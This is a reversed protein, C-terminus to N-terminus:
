RCVAEGRWEQSARQLFEHWIPAAVTLGDATYTMPANDANGVVVGVVLNQSYGVTWVSGAAYSLCDGGHSRQLCQDSTGTKAADNLGPVTLIDRWFGAPRANADHLIDDVGKAAVPNIAQVPDEQPFRFLPANQRDTIRCIASPAIMKGGNAITSYGTTLELLPLEASGIALPWGYTYSPDRAQAAKKTEEPTPVGARTLFALFGDEDHLALFTRIAPINRSRALAERITIRGLYGGEYNKPTDTGIHLPADDVLSGSSFGHEFAFSYLLPKISSGPQLPTRVMDISATAANEPTSVNGVYALIQRTHRDLVVLGVDKAGQAHVNQLHDAVSGEAIKQLVPDITTHITLGARIWQEPQEVSSLLNQAQSRIWQSFQPAQPLPNHRTFVITQLQKEAQAAATDSIIKQQRLLSIVLDARGPVVVAGTATFVTRGLLGIQVDSAPLDKLKMTGSRLATVADHHVATREHDGGPAYGSPEQPLSALVAIQPLSLESAHVGFYVEAAQEIGYVPGGFGVRNLYLTLIEDKTLTRELRCALWLEQLKRTYSKEPTLYLNRVLQQTITSGGQLDGSQTNHFAARLIARPDICSQREFFRKDEVAVIAQRVLPPVEEPALSSRDDTDFFRSLHNGERDQIIINQPLLLKSRDLPPAAWLITVVLAAIWLSAGILFSLLSIHLHRSLTLPPRM